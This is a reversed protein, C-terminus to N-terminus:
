RNSFSNIRSYLDSPKLPQTGEELWEKFLHYLARNFPVEVEVSDAMKLFYGNIYELETQRSASQLDQAMSNISHAKMKKEFIPLVIRSPLWKTLRILLWSPVAPIRAEKVGSRKLVDLGENLIAATLQQLVDLERSRNDHFGVMTLLANGLNIILKCYAADLPNDILSVSVKRKLIKHVASLTPDNPKNASLGVTGGVAVAATSSSKYANFSITAFLVNEFRDSILKVHEVGNLVSMIPVEKGFANEVTDLVEPLSYNKISPM